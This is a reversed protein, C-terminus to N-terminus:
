EKGRIRLSVFKVFVEENWPYKSLPYSKNLERRKRGACCCKFYYDQFSTSPLPHGNKALDCHIVKQFKRPKLMQINCTGANVKGLDESLNQFRKQWHQCGYSGQISLKVLSNLTELYAHLNLNGTHLRFSLIRNNKKVSPTKQRQESVPSLFQKAQSPIPLSSDKCSEGDRKLHNGGTGPGM